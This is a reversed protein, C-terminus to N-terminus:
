PASRQHIRDLMQRSNDELARAAVPNLMDELLPIGIEFEVELVLDHVGTQRESLQWFGSFKALDGAVQDFEIRFAAHDIRELERWRLESGKLLVTWDCVRGTDSTDVISVDIVNDMYQSFSECDLIERWIDDINADSEMHTTVTPM